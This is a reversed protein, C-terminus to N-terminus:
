RTGADKRKANEEEEKQGRRAKAVARGGDKTSRPRRQAVWVSAKDKKIEAPGESDERGESGAATEPGCAGQGGGDRRSRGVGVGKEECGDQRIEGGNGERENESTGKDEGGEHVSENECAIIGAVDVGAGGERAHARPGLVRKRVCAHEEM